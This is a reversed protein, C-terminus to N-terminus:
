SGARAFQAHLSEVLRQELQIFGALDAVLIRQAVGIRDVVQAELDFQM